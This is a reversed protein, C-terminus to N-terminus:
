KKTGGEDFKKKQKRLETLLGTYSSDGRILTSIGEGYGKSGGLRDSNWYYDLKHKEFLAPYGRILAEWYPFTQQIYGHDNKFTSGGPKASTELKNTILAKLQTLNKFGSFAEDTSMRIMLVYLYALYSSKIWRRSSLCYYGRVWNFGPVEIPYVRTLYWGAAREYANLINLGRQMWDQAKKHDAKLQDSRTNWRFIFRAKDTKLTGAHIADRMNGVGGDRCSHVGTAMSIVGEKPQHATAWGFQFYQGVDKWGKTNLDWKYVTNKFM